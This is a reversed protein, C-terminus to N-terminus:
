YQVSLTITASITRDGGIVPTSPSSLAATREYPLPAPSHSSSNVQVNRIFERTLGLSELVVDAQSLADDVALRLAEDRGAEADADNPRFTVSNVQTAGAIVSSDLTDGAVELPVEFQVTNQGRVETIRANGRDSYQPYLSIGTTQLNDVKLEQLKTVLRDTQEAVKQQVQVATDGTVSVGLRIIAIATEVAVSGEGTVTLVREAEQPFAPHSWCTLFLVLVPIVRAIKLM